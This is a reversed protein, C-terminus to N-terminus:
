RAVDEAPVPGIPPPYLRYPHALVSRRLWDSPTQGYGHMGCHPVRALGFSCGRLEVAGNYDLIYFNIEPDDLNFDRAYVARPLPPQGSHLETLLEAVIRRKLESNPSPIWKPVALNVKCIPGERVEANYPPGANPNKLWQAVCNLWTADAPCSTADLIRSKSVVYILRDSPNTQPEISESRFITTDGIWTVMFQKVSPRNQHLGNQYRLEAKLPAMEERTPPCESAGYLVTLCPLVSLLTKTKM